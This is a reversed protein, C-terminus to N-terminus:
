SSELWKDLNGVERDTTEDKKVIEIGLEALHRIFEGLPLASLKAAAGLSLSGDKYLSAALAPRLSDETDIMSKSLHLIVANPENGKLVM